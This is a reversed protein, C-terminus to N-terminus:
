GPLSRSALMSKWQDQPMERTVMDLCDGLRLMELVCVVGQSHERGEQRDKERELKRAKRMCM